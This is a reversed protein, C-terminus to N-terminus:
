RVGREACGALLCGPCRTFRVHVPHVDRRISKKLWSLFWEGVLPRGCPGRGWMREVGAGVRYGKEFLLTFVAALFFPLALMLPTAYRGALDHQQSILGSSTITSTCFTFATCIAFFLPLATLQRIRVFVPHHWFLSLVVSLLSMALCILGVTLTFIHITALTASEAPLSGSIVHPAITSQYLAIQAQILELHNHYHNRIAADLLNLDGLQQVYTINGWHNHFGWYLAPAAGIMSAPLAVVVLICQRLFTHPIGTKAQRIRQVVEAICFVVIWIATALVVSVLLPNVWFGLGVIFGIGVWRLALEKSSVGAHWRRTLQLVSLLLLLMLVFTEIYGGLTRLELVTDYLPPVAAFLAAITQFIRTASSSLQATQALAGALRWTLYVVLLSLLTPEARLMWTSPGALAFLIAMLYAELSGMYAQGYFYIPHEGRLIHEAQIGVMAEDGDIVGHTHYILWIRILLALLLCFWLPSRLLTTWWPHRENKQRTWSMTLMIVALTMVVISRRRSTKRTYYHHGKRDNHKAPIVELKKQEISM